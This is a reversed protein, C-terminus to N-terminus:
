SYYKDQKIEHDSTDIQYAEVPWIEMNKWGISKMKKRTPPFKWYTHICRDKTKPKCTHKANYELQLIDTSQHLQSFILKTIIMIIMIIIMTIIIIIVM